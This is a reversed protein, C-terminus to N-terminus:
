GTGLPEGGSLWLLKAKKKLLGSAPVKVGKPAKRPRIVFNVPKATVAFTKPIPHVVGEIDIAAFAPVTKGLDQGPRALFVYARM